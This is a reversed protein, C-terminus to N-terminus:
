FDRFLSLCSLLDSYHFIPPSIFTICTLRRAIRVLPLWLKIFPLSLYLFSIVDLLLHYLLPTFLSHCTVHAFTQLCSLGHRVQVLFLGTYRSHWERVGALWLNGTEWLDVFRKWARIRIWISEWKRRYVRESPNNRKKKKLIQGYVTKILWLKNPPIMPIM